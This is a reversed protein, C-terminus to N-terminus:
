HEHKGEAIGIKSVNNNFLNVAPFRILANLKTEHIFFMLVLERVKQCCAPVMAM